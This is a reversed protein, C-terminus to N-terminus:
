LCMMGSIPVEDVLDLFCHRGIAFFWPPALPTHTEVLHCCQSAALAVSQPVPADIVGTNM